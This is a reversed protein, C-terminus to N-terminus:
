GRWFFQLLPLRAEFVLEFSKAVCELLLEVALESLRLLRTPPTPAKWPVYGKFGYGVLTPNVLMNYKNAYVGWLPIRFLAM